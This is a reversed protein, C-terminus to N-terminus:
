LVSFLYIFSGFLLKRSTSIILLSTFYHAGGGGGGDGGDGGDGRFM